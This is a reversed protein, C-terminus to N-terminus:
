LVEFFPIGALIKQIRWPVIRIYAKKIKPHCREMMTVLPSVDRYLFNIEKKRRHLKKVVDKNLEHKQIQKNIAKLYSERMKVRNSCRSDRSVRYYALVRDIFVVKPSLAFVNMWCDWDENASLSEDFTIRYEKFIATDFIFCHIPISVGTEWKMMVDDFPNENQLVPSARTYTLTMDDIDCCVYRCYSLAKDPIKRLQEVQINIKDLDLLDDADLFQLYKGSAIRIGTNRAGGAGKNEQRVYTIRDKYKTKLVHETDDTSGDDVVIIECNEYTQDLACDIAQCVILGNNYTPIIISVLPKKM